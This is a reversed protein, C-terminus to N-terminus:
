QGKPEWIKGMVWFKATYAEGAASFSAKMIETKVTRAM